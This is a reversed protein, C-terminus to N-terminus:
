YAIAYMKGEDKIGPQQSNATPSLWGEEEAKRLAAYRCNVDLINLIRQFSTRVTTPTVFLHAAIIKADTTKLVVCTELLRLLAPTLPCHSPLIM